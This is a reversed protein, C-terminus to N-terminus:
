AAQQARAELADILDGVRWGYRRESLKIPAPVAKRRYLLRWQPLSVGYFKAADASNLVRHRAIETPLQELVNTM